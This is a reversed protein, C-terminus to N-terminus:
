GVSQRDGIVYPLRVHNASYSGVDDSVDGVADENLRPDAGVVLQRADEPRNVQIVLQLLAMDQHEGVPLEVRVHRRIDESRRGGGGGLVHTKSMGGRRWRPYRRWGACCFTIWLLLLLPLVHFLDYDCIKQRCHQSRPRCQGPPM